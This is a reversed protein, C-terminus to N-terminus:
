HVCTSTPLARGIQPSTPTGAAATSTRKSNPVVSGDIAVEASVSINGGSVPTYILGSLININPCFYCYTRKGEIIVM